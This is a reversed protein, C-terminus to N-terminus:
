PVLKGCSRLLLLKPESSERSGDLEELRPLRARKAAASCLSHAVNVGFLSRSHEACVSCDSSVCDWCSNIAVCLSLSASCCTDQKAATM